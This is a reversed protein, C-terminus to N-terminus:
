QKSNDRFITLAQNHNLFYKVITKGRRYTNTLWCFENALDKEIEKGAAKCNTANDTVVQLVNSPGITDIAGLRAIAVGIKEVGVFDKAYMFMAGRSNVVLVNILPKHKVNTWGESVISVGAPAKNIASVMKIFQPNRLVNFPIGNACLGREIKSDVM